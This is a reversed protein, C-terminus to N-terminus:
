GKRGCLIEENIRLADDVFGQNGADLRANTDAMELRRIIGLKAAALHGWAEENEILVAEM